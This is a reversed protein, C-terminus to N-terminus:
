SDKRLPFRVTREERASQYAGLIMELAKKGDEGTVPPETGDLLAEVFKLPVTEHYAPFHIPLDFVEWGMSGNKKSYMMLPQSIEGMIRTSSCDSYQQIIVGAEGYIELTNTAALDTWNSQHIAIVGSDFRWIAAGNDDVEMPVLVNDIVATVSIPDGFLWRLVDAAHIGEDLFAGGGGAVPDRLWDADKNDMWEKVLAFYHGHRMRVTGIRGIAGEDLLEKIKVYVPDFRKPFTQMYMVGADKCAKIMRDCDELTTAMPKECLVHKGAKAAAETHDAHRVNESCIAVADVDDRTLLRDLDPEFVTGYKRAATEGRERNDDWIAALEADRSRNIARAWHHAHDHAFSLLVIRLRDSM